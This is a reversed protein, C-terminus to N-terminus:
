VCLEEIQNPILDGINVDNLESCKKMLELLKIASEKNFAFRDLRFGEYPYYKEGLSIESLTVCLISTGLTSGIHTIHYKNGKVVWKDIPIVTPKGIDNICICEIM